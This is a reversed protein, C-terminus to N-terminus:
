MQVSARTAVAAEPTRCVAGGVQMGGGRPCVAFAVCFVMQDCFSVIDPFFQGEDIGIVDFGLAQRKVEELTSASVAEMETGDHTAVATESYRKDKGYKILLVTNRAISFRKIRRLLETSKGSRLLSFVFRACLLPYATARRRRPWPFPPLLLADNTHTHTHTHANSGCDWNSFNRCCPQRRQPAQRRLRM